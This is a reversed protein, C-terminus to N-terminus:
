YAGRKLTVKARTQAGARPEHDLMRVKYIIASGMYM